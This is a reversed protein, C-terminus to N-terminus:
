LVIHSLDPISSPWINTHRLLAVCDVFIQFSICGFATYLLSLDHYFIELVYQKFVQIFAVAGAEVFPLTVIKVAFVFYLWVDPAADKGFNALYFVVLTIEVQVDRRLGQAVAFILNGGDAVRCVSYIESFNNRHGFIYYWHGILIRFTFYRKFLHRYIIGGM